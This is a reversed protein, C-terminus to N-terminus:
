AAVQEASRARDSLYQALCAYYHRFGPDGSLARLELRAEVPLDLFDMDWLERVLRPGRQAWDSVDVVGATELALVAVLEATDPSLAQAPAAPRPALRFSLDVADEAGSAKEPRCATDARVQGAPRQPRLVRVPLEEPEPQGDDEAPDEGGDAALRGLEAVVHAAAAERVDAQEPRAAWRCTPTREGTEEDLYEGSLHRAQALRDDDVMAGCKCRVRQIRDHVALHTVDLFRDTSHATAPGGRKAPM